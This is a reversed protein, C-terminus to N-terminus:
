IGFSWNFTPDMFVIIVYSIVWICCVIIAFVSLLLGAYMRGSIYQRRYRGWGYLGAVLSLLAALISIPIFLPILSLSVAAIGSIFCLSYSGPQPSHNTQEYISM